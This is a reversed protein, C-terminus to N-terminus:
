PSGLINQFQQRYPFLGFSGGTHIFVIDTMDAYTGAIIEQILGHFAKGTYVPDLLLGEERAVRAITNLVEDSALGYGQGIYSDNTQIKYSTPLPTSFSSQFQDSFEAIDASVKQSFYAADDCVAMGLVSASLEYYSSGLTLGAQTGASGTATVILQPIIGHQEFDKKLEECAAFYGWVGVGNSAGTPIIYPKFGKDRYAQATEELIHDLNKHYERPPYCRITAGALQDLLLNGDSEGSGRLVLHVPLGLHACAFATARCHNSQIGGCTIFMDFGQELAYALTYELKRVKNGSLISGTLDDRKVWLRPGGLRNSLRDLPQLPTPLSALSLRSPWQIIPM